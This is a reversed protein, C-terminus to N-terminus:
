KRFPSKKAFARAGASGPDSLLLNNLFAVYVRLRSVKQCACSRPPSLLKQSCSPFLLLLLLFSLSNFPPFSSLLSFVGFPLVSKLIIGELSAEKLNFHPPRPHPSRWHEKFDSGDGQLLFSGSSGQVSSFCKHSHFGHEGKELM